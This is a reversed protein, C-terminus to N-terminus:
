SIIWGVLLLVSTAFAFWLCMVQIPVPVNEIIWVVSDEIAWSVERWRPGIGFIAGVLTAGIALGLALMPFSLSM